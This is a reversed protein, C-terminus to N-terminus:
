FNLNKLGFKARLDGLEAAEMGDVGDGAIALLDGVMKVHEGSLFCVNLDFRGCGTLMKLWAFVDSLPPARDVTQGTVFVLTEIIAGMINADIETRWLTGAHSAGCLHLLRWKSAPDKCHRRWERDFIMSTTPPETPFETKLTRKKEKRSLNKSKKKNLQSSSRLSSNSVSNQLDGSGSLTVPGGNAVCNCPEARVEHRTLQQKWSGKTEKLSEMEGRGLPKQEACAVFNKFEEYSAATHIAKKKM